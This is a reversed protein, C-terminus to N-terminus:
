ARERHSERLDIREHRRARERPRERVADGLVDRLPVHESNTEACPLQAADDDVGSDCGWSADLDCVGPVDDITYRRREDLEREPQGVVVARRRCTRQREHRRM